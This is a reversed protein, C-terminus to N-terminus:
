RRCKKIEYYGHLYGNVMHWMLASNAKLFAVLEDIVKPSPDLLLIRKMEVECAFNKQHRRQAHDNKSHWWILHIGLLSFVLRRSSISSSTKCANNTLFKASRDKCADEVSLYNPYFLGMEEFIWLISISFKLNRFAVAPLISMRAFALVIFFRLPCSSCPYIPKIPEQM